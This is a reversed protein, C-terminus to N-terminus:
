FQGWYKNERTSWSFPMLVVDPFLVDTVIVSCALEFTFFCLWLAALLCSTILSVWRIDCNKKDFMEYLEEMKQLKVLPMPEDQLVLRNLFDVIQSAYMQDLDSRTCECESSTDWSNWLEQLEICMAALDEKFRCIFFNSCSCSRQCYQLVHYLLIFM